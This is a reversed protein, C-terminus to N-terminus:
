EGADPSNEGATDPNKPIVGTPSINKETVFLATNENSCSVFVRDSARLYFSTNGDGDITPYALVVPFIGPGKKTEGTEEDEFEYDEGALVYSLQKGWNYDLTQSVKIHAGQNTISANDKSVFTIKNGDNDVVEKEVVKFGVANIDDDTTVNVFTGGTRLVVQGPGEPREIFMMLHPGREINDKQPSIIRIYQNQTEEQSNADVMELTLGYGTRMMIFADSAKPETNPNSKRAEINRKNGSDCLIITNKSTSELTIGQNQTAIGQQDVTDDCLFIRNGLASQLKVGNKEGRVKSDKELDNMEILHGTSSKWYSRGMFKDSCGYKFDELSRHWNMEGTPYEVSDDMVFSHGSISLIQVGTQPLDCKNNEPTRPGRYPRCESAQKFFPNAGVQEDKGQFDPAYQTNAYELEKGRCLFKEQEPVQSPDFAYITVNGESDVDAEPDPTIFDSTPNEFTPNQIGKICSVDGPKPGPCSPHAWQGCYHFPDDKFIMWNGNGSMIELRKWRRNCKADGDVMKIMHKEPTKFGYINPYTIRKQADVDVEVEALSDIDFGNYNETNWPPLNQSGDNPGCLYGDRKNQGYITEYEPVTYSFASGDANRTRSWTTGIYFASRKFGVEFMILITSGAPPVWTIGSDDIGGLASSPYAYPLAQWLMNPKHLVPSFFKVRNQKYFDITSVCLCSYLGTLNKKKNIDVVEDKTQNVLMELNQVKASIKKALRKLKSLQQKPTGYM